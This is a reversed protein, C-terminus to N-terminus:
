SLHKVQHHQNNAINRLGDLMTIMKQIPSDLNLETM